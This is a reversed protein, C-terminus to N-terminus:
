FSQKRVTVATECTLPHTLDLECMEGCLIHPILRPIQTWFLRASAATLVAVSGIM